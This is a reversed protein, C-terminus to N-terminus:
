RCTPVKLILRRASAWGTPQVAMDNITDLGLVLKNGAGMMPQSVDQIIMTNSNRNFYRVPAYPDTLKEIAKWYSLNPDVVFAAMDYNPIRCSVKLGGARALRNVADHLTKVGTWTRYVGTEGNFNRLALKVDQEVNTTGPVLVITETPARRKMLWVYDYGQAVLYPVMERGVKVIRQRDEPIIGQVIVHEQRPTGDTYSAYIDWRSTADFSHWSSFRIEFSRHMSNDIAVKVKRVWGTVDRRDMYVTFEYSM